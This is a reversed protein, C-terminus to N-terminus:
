LYAERMRSPSPKAWPSYGFVTCVSQFPKWSVPAPAGSRKACWSVIGTATREHMDIDQMEGDLFWKMTPFGQIKFKKGVTHTHKYPKYAHTYIHMCAHVYVYTCAYM